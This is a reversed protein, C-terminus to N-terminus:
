CWWGEEVVLEECSLDKDLLSEPVSFVAHRLAVAASPRAAPDWALMARLLGVCLRGGPPGQGTPDRARLVRLLAADSCSWQLQHVPHTSAGNGDLQPPLVCLEIMGRLLLAQAASLRAGKAHHAQMRLSAAAVHRLVTTRTHAPVQNRVHM